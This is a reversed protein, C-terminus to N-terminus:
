KEFSLYFFACLIDARTYRANSAITDRCINSSIQSSILIVLFIKIDIVYKKISIEEIKFILRRLLFLNNWM